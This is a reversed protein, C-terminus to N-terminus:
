GRRLHHEGEQANGHSTDQDNILGTLSEDFMFCFIL